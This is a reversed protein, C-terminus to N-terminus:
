NGPSGVYQLVHIISQASVGNFYQMRVYKGLGLDFYPKAVNESGVGVYETMANHDTSSHLTYARRRRMLM